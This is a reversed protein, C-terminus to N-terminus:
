ILNEIFKRIALEEEDFSVVNKFQNYVNTSWEGYNAIVEQCKQAIIKYNKSSIDIVTKGEIFRIARGTRQINQRRVGTGSAVVAIEIGEVNFGEDLTVVTSLTTIKGSEFATIVEEKYKTSGIRYCGPYDAKIEEYTRTNGELDVYRIVPNKKGIDVYEGKAIVDYGKKRPMRIEGCTKSHFSGCNPILSALTDAFEARQSFVIMRKDPFMERIEKVADLKSQHGHLLNERQKTLQIFINAETQLRRPHYNHDSEGRWGMQRAYWDRWESGTKVIAHKRKDDITTLGEQAKRVGDHVMTEM